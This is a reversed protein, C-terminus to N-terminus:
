IRVEPCFVFANDPLYGLVDEVVCRENVEIRFLLKPGTVNCLMELMHLWVDAPSRHVVGFLKSVIKGVQVLEVRVMSTHVKRAVVINFVTWVPETPFAVDGFLWISLRGVAVIRDTAATIRWHSHDHNVLPMADHVGKVVEEVAVVKAVLHKVYAPAIMDAIPFMHHHPELVPLRFGHEETLM